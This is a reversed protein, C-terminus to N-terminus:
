LGLEEGILIVKIRGAPKCFRTCVMDACICDASKCDACQGTTGCPTNIGFRQANAPATRNRVLSYAAAKDKVVKNMGSIVIVQKPGFCLAAVRNGVGDINFLEGEETIANSSMLFTDCTMAERMLRMKEAGSVKDRDILKQGRERLKDKIGLTDVTMTGGWSVVDEPAIMELVAKVASEADSYYEAEFRRKRLAEAVRPGSKDMRKKMPELM